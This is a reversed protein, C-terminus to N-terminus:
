LTVIPYKDQKYIFFKPVVPPETWFDWAVLRSDVFGQLYRFSSGFNLQNAPCRFWWCYPNVSQLIWCIWLGRTFCKSRLFWHDWSYQKKQERSKSIATWCLRFSVFKSLFSCSKKSTPIWWLKWSGPQNHAIQKFGIYIYIYICM